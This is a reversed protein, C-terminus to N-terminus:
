RRVQLNRLLRDRWCLCKSTLSLTTWSETIREGRKERSRCSRWSDSRRVFKRRTHRYLLVCPALYFSPCFLIDALPIFWALEYFYVLVCVCVCVSERVRENIELTKELTEIEHQDRHGQGEENLSLQMDKTVRLLQVDRAQDQLDEVQM